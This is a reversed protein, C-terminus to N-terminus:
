VLHVPAAHIAALKGPLATLQWQSEPRAHPSASPQIHAGAQLRTQEKAQVRSQDGGQAGPQRQPQAKPQPHAQPQPQFLAITRSPHTRPAPEMAKKRVQMLVHCLASSVLKHVTQSASCSPHRKTWYIQHHLDAAALHCHRVLEQDTCMHCSWAVLQKIQHHHLSSAIHGVSRPECSALCGQCVEM